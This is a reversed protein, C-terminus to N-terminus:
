AHMGWGDLEAPARNCLAPAPVPALVPLGGGLRAGGGWGGVLFVFSAQLGFTQDIGSTCGQAKAVDMAKEYVVLLVEAADNM